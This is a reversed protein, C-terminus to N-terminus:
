TERLEDLILPELLLAKKLFHFLIKRCKDIGKNKVLLLFQCNKIFVAGIKGRLLYPFPNHQNCWATSPIPPSFYPIRYTSSYKLFLCFRKHAIVSIHLFSLIESLDKKFAYILHTLIKM